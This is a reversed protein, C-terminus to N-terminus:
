GYIQKQGDDKDTQRDTKDTMDTKSRKQGCASYLKVTLFFVTKVAKGMKENGKGVKKPL